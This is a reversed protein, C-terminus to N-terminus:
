FAQLIDTPNFGFHDRLYSLGFSTFHITAWSARLFQISRLIRAEGWLPYRLDRLAIVFDGTSAILVGVAVVAIEILPHRPILIPSALSTFLGIYLVTGSVMAPLLADLLIYFTSPERVFLTTLGLPGIAWAIPPDDRLLAVLAHACEFLIIWLLLFGGLGLISTIHIGVSTGSM